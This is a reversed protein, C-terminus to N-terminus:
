RNTSKLLDPKQRAKPMASVGPEPRLAGFCKQQRLDRGGFNKLKQLIQKLKTRMIM